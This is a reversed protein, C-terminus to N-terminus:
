ETSIEVTNVDTMNIDTTEVVTMNTDCISSEVTQETEHLEGIADNIAADISDDRMSDIVSKKKRGRGTTNAKSPSAAAAAAAKKGKDAHYAELAEKLPEIMDDLLMDSLAAFVDSATITKRQTTAQVHTSCATIYLAFIAAARAFSARAERSINIGDPITDKLLRMIVASPLTLDENKESM